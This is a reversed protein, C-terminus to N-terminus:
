ALAPRFCPRRAAAWSDLPPRSRCPQRHAAWRPSATGASRRHQALRRKHFPRGLKRPTLTTRLLPQRTLAMAISVCTAFCFEFWRRAPAQVQVHAAACLAVAVLGRRLM